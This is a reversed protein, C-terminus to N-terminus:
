CHPEKASVMCLVLRCKLGTQSAQQKDASLYRPSRTPAPRAAPSAPSRPVAYRGAFQMLLEDSCRVFTPGLMLSGTGFFVVLIKRM